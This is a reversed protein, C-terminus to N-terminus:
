SLTQCSDLKSAFSCAYTHTPVYSASTNLLPDRVIVSYVVGQGPISNFVAVTLDSSLLTMVQLPSPSSSNTFVNCVDLRWPVHASLFPLLLLLSWTSTAGGMQREADNGPCRGLESHRQVPQARIPRERASLVPLRWVAAALTHQSGEVWRLGSSNRGQRLTLGTLAHAHRNSARRRHSKCHIFPREAKSMYIHIFVHQSLM